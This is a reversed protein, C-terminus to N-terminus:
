YIKWIGSIERAVEDSVDTWEENKTDEQHRALTTIDFRHGAWMGRTINTTDKTGPKAPRAWCIRSVLVEGFGTGQIDPGRLQPPKIAIAEARVFQMTTLNRLVWPQDQPTYTSLNVVLEGCAEFAPDPERTRAKCHSYLRWSEIALNPAEHVAAVTPVAFHRLSLDSGGRIYSLRDDNYFVPLDARVQGFADLEDASFLDPPFDGMDLDGGVCVINKGAWWGLFSMYYNHVYERAIAWFYQSTLGLCAIDVMDELYGFVM